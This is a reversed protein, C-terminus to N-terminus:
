RFLEELVKVSKMTGTAPVHFTYYKLMTEFMEKREEVNNSLSSLSEINCIFLRQFLELVNGTIFNPHQPEHNVFCGEALDFWKCTELLNNNPFCGLYSTLRFMFLLHFSELGKLNSDLCTISEEIFDFMPPNPEELRLVRSLLETILFAQARRAQSFPINQLPAKQSYEKVRQIEKGPRHYVVMELNNLPQLLLTKKTKKSGWAGNVIYSQMGFARTYIKVIASNDGYRVHSLM